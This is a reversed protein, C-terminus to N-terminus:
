KSDNEKEKKELDKKSKNEIEDNIKQDLAVESEKILDHEIKQQNIEM